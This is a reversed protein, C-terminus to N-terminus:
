SSAWDRLHKAVAASRACVACNVLDERDPPGDEGRHRERRWFRFRIEAETRVDAQCPRSAEPAFSSKAGGEETLESMARSPMSGAAVCMPPELSALEVKWSPSCPM